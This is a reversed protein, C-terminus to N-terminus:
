VQQRNNARCSLTDIRLFSVAAKGLQSEFDKQFRNNLIVSQFYFAEIKLHKHM